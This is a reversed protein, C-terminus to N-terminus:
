VVIGDPASQTICERRAVCKRKSSPLSTNVHILLVSMVGSQLLRIHKGFLSTRVAGCIRASYAFSALSPFVLMEYEM